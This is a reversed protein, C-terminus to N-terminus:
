DYQKFQNMLKGEWMTWHLLTVDSRFGLETGDSTKSKNLFLSILLVFVIIVRLIFYQKLLITIIEFIPAMITAFCVPSYLLNTLQISFVGRSQSYSNESVCPLRSMKM